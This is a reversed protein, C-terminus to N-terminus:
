RRLHELAESKQRHGNQLQLGVDLCFDLAVGCKLNGVAFVVQRLEFRFLFLIQVVAHVIRIRGVVFAEGIIVLLGRVALLHHYLVGAGRALRELFM